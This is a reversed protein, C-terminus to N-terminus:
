KVFLSTYSIGVSDLISISVIIIIMIIIIIIIIIIIFIIIIIIIDSIVYFLLYFFARIFYNVVSTCTLTLNSQESQIVREFIAEVVLVKMYGDLTMKKLHLSHRNFACTQIHEVFSFLAAAAALALFLTEDLCIETLSEPTGFKKLMEEGAAESFYKRKLLRVCLFEEQLAEVLAASM